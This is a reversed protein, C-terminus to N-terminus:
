RSDPKDHHRFASVAMWVIAALMMVCIIASVIPNLSQDLTLILLGIGNVMLGVPIALGYTRGPRFRREHRFM